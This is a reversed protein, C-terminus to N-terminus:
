DTPWPKIQVRPMKVPLSGQAEMEGLWVKVAARQSADGGGYTALLNPIHPLEYAVYPSGFATYAVAPHDVFLSRWGWTRFSSTLRASGLSMMPMQFLNIFV